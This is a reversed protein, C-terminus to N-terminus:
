GDVLKFCDNMESSQASFRELCFAGKSCRGQKERAEKSPVLSRREKPERHGVPRRGAVIPRPAHAEGQSYVTRPQTKSTRAVAPRQLTWPLRTGRSAFRTYGPKRNRGRISVEAAGNLSQHKSERERQALFRATLLATLLATM